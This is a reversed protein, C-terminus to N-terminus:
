NFRFIEYRVFQNNRQMPVMLGLTSIIPGSFNYVFPPFKITKFKVYNSDTVILIWECSNERNLTGDQNEFKCEPRLIRYYFGQYNDYLLKKFRSNSMMYKDLAFFYKDNKEVKENFASNSVFLKSSIAKNGIPNGKSDYVYISDSAESSYILENRNNSVRMPNFDNFMKKSYSKPFSGAKNIFIPISDLYFIVEKQRNFYTNMNEQSTEGQVSHYMYVYNDIILLPFLKSNDTVYTSDNGIPINFLWKYKENGNSDILYLMNSRNAIYISDSNVIYYDRMKYEKQLFITDNAKGVTDMCIIINDKEMFYYFQNNNFCYKLRFSNFDKANIPFDIVSVRFKDFNNSIYEQSPKCSLLLISIFLIRIM